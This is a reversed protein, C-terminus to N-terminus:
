YKKDCLLDTFTEEDWDKVLTTGDAMYTTENLFDLFEDSLTQAGERVAHLYGRVPYFSTSTYLINQRLETPAIFSYAIETKPEPNGSVFDEWSIVILPVLDYGKERDVLKALDEATVEMVVGNIMSNITPTPTINLMAKEKENQDAGWHATQRAKYNFIRKMGFTVVPRMSELAEASVSRSASQSNILSGYGFILIKDKPYLEKLSHFDSNPYKLVPYKAMKSLHPVINDM